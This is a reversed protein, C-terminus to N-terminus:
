EKIIRLIKELLAIKKIELNETKAERNAMFGLNTLAKTCDLLTKKADGERGNEYVFVSDPYRKLIADKIENISLSFGSGINYEEFYEKQKESALINAECVDNVLIYDREISGDGFIKYPEKAMSAKRWAAIINPHSGFPNQGFGFVNSYRLAVTQIGHKENYFKLLDESWLKQMGYHSTPKKPATEKIGSQPIEIDGYIASSSSFIFKIKKANPAKSCAELLKYTLEFNNKNTAVPDAMSLSVAPTAALHFITSFTGNRILNLILDSGADMLFYNESSGAFLRQTHLTSQVNDVLVVHRGIIRSSLHSGIFGLSGTILIPNIM